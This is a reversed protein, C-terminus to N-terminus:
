AVCLKALLFGLVEIYSTIGATCNWPLTNIESTSLLGLFQYFHPQKQGFLHHYIM